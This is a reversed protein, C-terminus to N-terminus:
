VAAGAAASELAFSAYILGKALERLDTPSLPVDEDAILVAILGHAIEQDNVNLSEEIFVTFGEVGTPVKGVHVGDDQCSPSVLHANCWPPCAIATGDPEIHTATM